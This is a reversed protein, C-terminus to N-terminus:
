VGFLKDKLLKTMSDALVQQGLINPHNLCPSIYTDFVRNNPKLITLWDQPPDSFGWALETLASDHPLLWNAGPVINYHDLLELRSWTSVFYPTIDHALCTTYINNINLTTEFKHFRLQHRLINTDPFNVYNNDNDIYHCRSVPGPFAFVAVYDVGNKKTKTFELLDCYMGTIARGGAGYLLFDLKLQKSTLIPFGLDPRGRQRDIIPLSPIRDDYEDTTFGGHHTGLEQGVTYSDGFWVLTASM